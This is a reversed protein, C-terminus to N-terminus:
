EREGSRRREDFRRLLEEDWDSRDNVGFGTLNLQKKQKEDNSDFCFLSWWKVSCCAWERKVQLDQSNPGGKLAAFLYSM